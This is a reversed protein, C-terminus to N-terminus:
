KYDYFNLTILCEIIINFNFTMSVGIYTAMLSINFLM